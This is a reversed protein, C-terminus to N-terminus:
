YHHKTGHSWLDFEYTIKHKILEYSRLDNKEWKRQIAWACYDAAQVCPDSGAPPFDVKWPIKQLTQTLVSNVSNEFSRREKKTGLSAATVLTKKDPLIVNKVGHKFHFFWGYKYFEPQNARIRPLAKSKEMITAQIKFACAILLSFVKDRVAQKDSTAHFYDGLEFGDFALRRRLAILDSSFSCDECSITCLIFYKSVNLGRNFTFCGAEDAFFFQEPM